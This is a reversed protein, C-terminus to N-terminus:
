DKWHAPDLDQVQVVYRKGTSGDPRVYTALQHGVVRLRMSRPLLHRTDDLSDSAGLYAGRRTAVEFVM